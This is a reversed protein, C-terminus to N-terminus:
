LFSYVVFPTLLDRSFLLCHFLMFILCERLYAVMIVADGERDLLEHINILPFKALLHVVGQEYPSMKSFDYGMVAVPNHTWRLPFKPKGDVLISATSCGPAGQVRVLSYLWEKKFNSAYQPFLRKGAHASISIWTGKNVDKTRYFHFFVAVSPEIDLSKCLVEFGRIFAWSNPRIQSPVVNLYKLVGMEFYTFPIKVGFEELVAMYMLFSEDFDGEMEQDCVREDRDYSLVVV